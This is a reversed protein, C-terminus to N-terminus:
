PKLGSGPLSEGAPESLERGHDNQQKLTWNDTMTTELWVSGSKRSVQVVLGFKKCFLEELQRVTMSDFVFLDGEEAISNGLLAAPILKIRGADFQGRVTPKYFELKLFPYNNNFASQLANVTTNRLVQLTVSM